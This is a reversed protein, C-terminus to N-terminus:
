ACLMPISGIKISYLIGVLGTCGPRNFFYAM